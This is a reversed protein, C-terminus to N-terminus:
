KILIVKSFSDTTKFSKKFAPEDIVILHFNAVEDDYNVTYNEIVSGSREMDSLAYQVDANSEIKNLIVLM